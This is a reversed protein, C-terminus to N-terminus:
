PYYVRVGAADCEYRNNASYWGDLYSVTSAVPTAVTSACTCYNIQVSCLVGYKQYLNKLLTPDLCSAQKSLNIAYLKNLTLLPNLDTIRNPTTDVTINSVDLSYLNRLLQIGNLSQINSNRATITNIAELDAYTVQNEPKGVIALIVAKFGWTDTFAEMPLATNTATPTITSTTTATRTITSTRTITRTATPSPILSITSTRTPTATFTNAVVIETLTVTATATLVSATSNQTPEGVPATPIKKKSCASLTLVIVLIVLWSRKM